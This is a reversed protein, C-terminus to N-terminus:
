RPRPRSRTAFGQEAAPQQTVEVVVAREDEDERGVARTVGCGKQLRRGREGGEVVFRVQQFGFALAPEVALGRQVVARKRPKGILRWIDGADLADHGNRRARQLGNFFPPAFM